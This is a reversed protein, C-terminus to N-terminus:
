EELYHQEIEEVSIRSAPEVGYSKDVTSFDYNAVNDEESVPVDCFLKISVGSSFRLTIDCSPFAVSSETIIAGELYSFVSVFAEKREEGGEVLGDHWTCLIESATEVRWSCYVVLAYEGRPVVNGSKSVVPPIRTVKRGIYLLFDPSGRFPRAKWCQKGVLLQMDRRLQEYLTRKANDIQTEM